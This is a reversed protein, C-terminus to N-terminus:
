PVESYKRGMQRIAVAPILIRSIQTGVLRLSM